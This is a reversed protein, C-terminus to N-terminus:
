LMDTNVMGSYINEQRALAPGPTVLADLFVFILFNFFVDCVDIDYYFHDMFSIPICPSIM